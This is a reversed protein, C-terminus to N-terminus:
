DACGVRSTALALDDMWLDFQAPTSGGQYLWWGFWVSTITPLVFDANSGGHEQTSASLEPRAVGDIWVDMQNDEAALRWELCLWKGSEAPTTVQWNTWDGTAGGDSGAGWLSRDATPAPVYQGGIPRILGAAGTGAAEVMTFHAFTPASPFETVYARLRGYLEGGPLAPVAVRLYARGNGDTHVHLARTGVAQTDDITLSGAQTDISWRPDTAPGKAFGEFDESFLREVPAGADAGSGGDISGADPTVPPPSADGLPVSTDDDDDGSASASITGTCAPLGVAVVLIALAGRMRDLLLL